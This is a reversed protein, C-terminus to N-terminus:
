EDEGEDPDHNALLKLESRIERAEEIIARVEAIAEVPAEDGGDDVDGRDPAVFDVDGGKNHFDLAKEVSHKLTSEQEGDIEAPLLPKLQEMIKSVGNAKIEEANAKLANETAKNLLKKAKLDEMSHRVELYDKAISAISKSILALVRTFAYTAGLKMIVSGQSAGVVSTDEPSEDIALAVGRVIEYWTASWDKWDAVNDMSADGLFEIRLLVRGEGVNPEELPLDLGDFAQTISQARQNAAQLKGNADKFDQHATAPDFDSKRIIGEVFSVGKRGLFQDVDFLRLLNVQQHTLVHLDMTGLYGILDELPAELPQKQPQTANHKLIQNVANFKGIVQRLEQQLWRSFSYLEFIQM